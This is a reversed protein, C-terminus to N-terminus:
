IKLTPLIITTNTDFIKVHNKGVSCYTRPAMELKMYKEIKSVSFYLLDEEEQNNDYYNIDSFDRKVKVGKYMLDRGDNILSKIGDNIVSFKDEILMYNCRTEKLYNNRDLYIKYHGYANYVKEDKNFQKVKIIVNTGVGFILNGNSELLRVKSQRAIKFCDNIIRTELLYKRENVVQRSDVKIIIGGTSNLHVINVYEKNMDLFIYKEDKSITYLNSIDKNSINFDAIKLFHENNVIPYKLDLKAKTDRTDLTYEIQNTCEIKYMCDESITSEGIMIYVQYLGKDIISYCTNQSFCLYIDKGYILNNVYSVITMDINIKM